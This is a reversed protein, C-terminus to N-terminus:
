AHSLTVIFNSIKCVIMKVIAGKKNKYSNGFQSISKQYEKREFRLIFIFHSFLRSPAFRCTSGPGVVRINRATYTVLEINFIEAINTFTKVQRRVVAL